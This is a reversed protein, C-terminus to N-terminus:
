GWWGPAAIKKPGSPLTSFVVWVSRQENSIPQEGGKLDIISLRRMGMGLSGDVHLGRGDPGRHVLATDMATLVEADPPRDPERGFIGYIGCM